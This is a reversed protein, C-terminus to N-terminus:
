SLEANVTQTDNAVADLKRQLVKARAKPPLHALAKRYAQSAKDNRGAAAHIDGVLEAYISAFAKPHDGRLINLADDAKNQGWLLRAQRVRAIHRLTTQAANETAWELSDIAKSPKGAIVFYEAMALSAQSAYPSDSYNSQLADVMSVLKDTDGNGNLAAQFEAYHRSAEHALNNQWVQWGQWGVIAGIGVVVGVVLALGNERWWQIVRELDNEENIGDDAM